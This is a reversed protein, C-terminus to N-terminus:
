LCDALWGSNKVYSIARFFVLSTCASYAVNLIRWSVWSSVGSKEKNKEKKVAVNGECVARGMAAQTDSVSRIADCNHPWRLSEPVPAKWQIGPGPVTLPTASVGHEHIGLPKRKKINKKRYLVCKLKKCENGSCEGAAPANNRDWPHEWTRGFRDARWREFSGLLRENRSAGRFAAVGRCKM